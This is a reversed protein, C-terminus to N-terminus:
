LKLSEQQLLGVLVLQQHLGLKNCMLILSSPQQGHAYVVLDGNWDAPLDLAYSSGPGTQGEVHEQAAAPVLPTATVLAALILGRNAKSFTM